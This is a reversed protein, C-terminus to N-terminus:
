LAVLFIEFELVFVLFPRIEYQLVFPIIDQFYMHISIVM